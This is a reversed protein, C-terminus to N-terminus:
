RPTRVPNRPHPFSGTRRRFRARNQPMSATLSAAIRSKEFCTWIGAGSHAAPMFAIGEWATPAGGIQYHMFWIWVLLLVFTMHVRIATGAITGLRVSWEM